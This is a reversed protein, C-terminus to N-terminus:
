KITEKNILFMIGILIGMVLGGVHAYNDISPTTAGIFLNIGIVMVLNSLAGKNIKDKNKIVFVLLAGLLGFIAGSAGISVTEPLLINSLISAALGSIIYLIIYKVKSFIPELQSGLIYLSYM